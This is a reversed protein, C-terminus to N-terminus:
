PKEDAAHRLADCGASEFAEKVLLADDEDDEVLLISGGL